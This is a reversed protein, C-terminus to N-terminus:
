CKTGNDWILQNIYNEIGQDFSGYIGFDKSSEIFRELYEITEGSEITKRAFDFGRQKEKSNNVQKRRQV